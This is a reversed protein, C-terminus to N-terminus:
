ADIYIEAFSDIFERTQSPPAPSISVVIWTFGIEELRGFAENQREIEIKPRAITADMYPFVVDLPIGRKDFELGLSTITAAMESESGASATRSTALIEDPVVLPM